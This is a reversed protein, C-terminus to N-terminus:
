KIRITLSGPRFGVQAGEAIFRQTMGGSFLLQGDGAEDILAWARVAGWATSAAPFQFFVGNSKIGNIAAPFAVADNTIELRAYDLATVEQLDAISSGFSPRTSLLALHVLAPTGSGLKMGLLENATDRHIM